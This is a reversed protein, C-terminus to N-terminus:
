SRSSWTGSGGIRRPRRRLSATSGQRLRSDLGVIEDVPQGDKMFLLAPLKRIGYGAAISPAEEVNAKVFKVRGTFKEALAELLPTMMHCPGCSDAYFDVVVPIKSRLVQQAYERSMVAMVQESM